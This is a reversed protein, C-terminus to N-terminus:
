LEFSVRFLTGKNFTFSYESHELQQTFDKIIELGLSDKQNSPNFGLGNDKISLTIRHNRKKLSIKVCCKTENSHHKISNTLVENIITALALAQNIMLICTDIKKEIQLNKDVYISEITNIINSLYIESRITSFTKHILLYEHLSSMAQIRNILELFIDKEKEEKQNSATLWLLAIMFQFNNKVRHNLENLLIENNNNEAKSSKKKLFINHFYKISIFTYILIFSLLSVSLISSLPSHTTNFM